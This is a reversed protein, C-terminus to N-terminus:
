QTHESLYHKVLRQVIIDTSLEDSYEVGDEFIESLHDSERLMGVLKDSAAVREVAFAVIRPDSANIGLSAMINLPVTACNSRVIDYKEGKRDESGEFAQVIQGFTYSGLYFTSMLAKPDIDVFSADKSCVEELAIAKCWKSDQSPVALLRM